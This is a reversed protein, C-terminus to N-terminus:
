IIDYVNLKLKLEIGQNFVSLHAKALIYDVTTFTFFEAGIEWRPSSSVLNPCLSPFIETRELQFIIPSFAVMKPFVKAVVFCKIDALRQTL